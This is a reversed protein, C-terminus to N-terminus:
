DKVFKQIQKNNGSFLQLFYIGSKLEATLLQCQSVAHKFNIRMVENGLVDIIKIENFNFKSSNVFIKDEVPNPYISISNDNSAEDIGTTMNNLYRIIACDIGSSAQAYGGVVIKGDGVGVTIGPSALPSPATFRTSKPM